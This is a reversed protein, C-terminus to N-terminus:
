PSKFEAGEDILENAKSQTRNYVSLKYGGKKMLHRAMHKGM